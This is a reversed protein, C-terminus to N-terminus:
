GFQTGTGAPQGWSPPNWHSRSAPLPPYAPEKQGCWSGLQSGVPLPRWTTTSLLHLQIQQSQRGASTRLLINKQIILVDIHLALYFRTCLNFLFSSPCLIFVPIGIQWPKNNSMLSTCAWIFLGEWCCHSEPWQSTVWAVTIMVWMCWYHQRYCFRYFALLTNGLLTVNLILSKLDDWLLQLSLIKLTNKISLLKENWEFMSAKKTKSSDWSQETSVHWAALLSLENCGPTQRRMRRDWLQGVTTAEVQRLKYMRGRNLLRYITRM